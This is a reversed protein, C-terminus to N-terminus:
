HVNRPSETQRLRTPAFAQTTKKINREIYSTRSSHEREIYALSDVAFESICHETRVVATASEHVRESQDNLVTRFTVSRKDERGCQVVDVESSQTVTGSLESSDVFEARPCRGYGGAGAMGTAFRTKVNGTLRVVMLIRTKGTGDGM